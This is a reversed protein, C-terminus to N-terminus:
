QGCKTVSLQKHSDMPELCIVCADELNNKQLSNMVRQFYELEKQKKNLGTTDVKLRDIERSLENQVAKKKADTEFIDRRLQSRIDTIAAETEELKKRLEECQEILRKCLLHQVQEISLM